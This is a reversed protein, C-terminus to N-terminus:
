LERATQLMASALARVPSGEIRMQEEYDPQRAAAFFEPCAEQVAECWKLLDARLGTDRLRHPLSADTKLGTPIHSVTWGKGYVSLSGDGKVWAHRHVALDGRVTAAIDARLCAGRMHPAFLLNVKPM